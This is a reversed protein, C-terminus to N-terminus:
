SSVGGPTRHWTAGSIGTGLGTVRNCQRADLNVSVPTTALNSRKGISLDLDNFRRASAQVTPAVSAANEKPHWPPDTLVFVVTGCLALGTTRSASRSSSSSLYLWIAWPTLVTFAVTSSFGVAPDFYLPMM